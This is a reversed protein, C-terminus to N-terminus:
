GLMDEFDVIIDHMCQMQKEKVQGFLLLDDAFMLHLIKTGNRGVTISKCDGVEVARSILHPLKEMCLIFIYLSLPDGERLGRKPSFFQSQQGHWLVNTQVFSIRHMILSILNMPM